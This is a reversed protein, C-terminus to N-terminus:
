VLHMETAEKVKNNFYVHLQTAIFPTTKTGGRKQMDKLKSFSLILLCDYKDWSFFIVFVVVANINTRLFKFFTNANM